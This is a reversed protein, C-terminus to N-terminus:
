DTVAFPFDNIETLSNGPTLAGTQPNVGVASFGGSFGTICFSQIGSQDVQCDYFSGIATFPSNPVAALTGNSLSFGEISGFNTTGPTIGFTYVFNGNPLIMFDYPAYTTAISSVLSPIGGSISFLYLHQDTADQWQDAIEATGLLYPAAPDTHLQAVGIHFPSGGVLTLAGGSINFAVVGLTADGQGVFLYQGSSDVALSDAYYLIYPAIFPSGNVLTLAGTTSNITFAWVEGTSESGVFLYQGLPDSVATDATGGGIISTVPYPTGGNIATLGGTSSDISFAAIAADSGLPVYLFSKNVIVMNDSNNSPVTPPTFSSLNTLNGSTDLSAADIQTFSSDMFYVLTALNGGTGLAPCSGRGSISGSSSGNSSGGPQGPTVPPCGSTTCGAMGMALILGLILLITKWVRM